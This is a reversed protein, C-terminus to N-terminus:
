GIRQCCRVDTTYVQWMDVALFCNAIAREFMVATRTPVQKANKAIDFQLYQDWAALAEPSPTGAAHPPLEAIASEYPRREDLEAKAKKYTGTIHQDVTKKQDREFAEYEAWSEEMGILPLQLERRFLGRIKEAGKSDLAQAPRMASAAAAAVSGSGTIKSAVKMEFERFAVWVARGSGVHLGTANVADDFAKRVLAITAADTRANEWM